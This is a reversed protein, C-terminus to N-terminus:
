SLGSFYLVGRVGRVSKGCKKAIHVLFLGSVDGDGYFAAKFITFASSTSHKLFLRHILQM